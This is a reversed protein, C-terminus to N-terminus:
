VAAVLIECVDVFVCEGECVYVGHKKIFLYTLRSKYQTTTKGVDSRRPTGILPDAIM